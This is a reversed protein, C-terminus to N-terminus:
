AAGMRRLVPLIVDSPVDEKVVVEGVKPSLVLRPHGDKVKKDWAMRALLREAPIGAITTPLEYLQLIELTTQSLDPTALGLAVSIAAAAAMGIAVAEGHRYVTYGTEAELAHGITHGYNLIARRGRERVDEAVVQAKFACARAIIEVLAEPDRKRVAASHQRLFADLTCDGILGAKIIEALGTKFERENLTTLVELDSLVVSPQYFSGILNKGERHNVAVKGGISSDVQALLSTPVQVLRVGRLYTAAAFGALDGIVGGGLALIASDRELCGVAAADYVKTLQDLRKYAEGDPITVTQVDFGAGELAEVAMDLYLAGVTPNTVVLIKGTLGEERLIAGVRALLGSGLYLPYVETDAKIEM